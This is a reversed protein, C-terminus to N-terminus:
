KSTSQDYVTSGYEESEKMIEKAEDLTIKHDRDQQILRIGCEPVLVQQVFEIPTLPESAKADLVGSKLFMDTLVGMMIDSGQHGYYGPLTLHFRQIVQKVDRAKNGLREFEQQALELFSSPQSRNIISEFSERLSEIRGPLAEFDIPEPYGKEKAMSKFVLEIRHIRCFKKKDNISIDPSKYFFPPEPLGDIRCKEVQREHEKKKESHYQKENKKIIDILRKIKRPYPAEIVEACLPCVYSEQEQSVIETVVKPEWQSVKKRKPIVLSKLRKNTTIPSEPEPRKTSM